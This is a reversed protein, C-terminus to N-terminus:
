RVLMVSGKEVKKLEGDLEYSCVWIYPASPQLKHQFRGDWGVNNDNTAFVVQGHRNYIKLNYYVLGGRVIPKFQDNRGNFDPSFANPFFVGQTCRKLIIVISDESKCDNTDIVHLWYIGSSSIFNQPTTKGDNWLYSKYRTATFLNLRQGPCISTDNGLSPKIPTKVSLKVSDTILCGPFAVAEVSFLDDPNVSSIRATKNDALVELGEQPNWYYNTYGAAAKIEITDGFCLNVKNIGSLLPEPETIIISKTQIGNCFSNFKVTYTGSRTVNFVSDTSGDQWLYMKFWSGPTLKITDGPCLVFKPNMFNGPPLLTIELSDIITKDGDIYAYIKIKTSGSGVGRFTVAITSDNVKNLTNIDTQKIDWVVPKNCRVNKNVSYYVQGEVTCVTDPGTLKIMNCENRDQCLRDITLAITSEILTGPIIPMFNNEISQFNLNSAYLGFPKVIIPFTTDKVSCSQFAKYDFDQRILEISASPSSPTNRFCSLRTGTFSINNGGESLYYDTGPITSASTQSKIQGSLNLRSYYYDNNGAKTGIIHFNLATDPKLQVRAPTMFTSYISKSNEVGLTDDFVVVLQDRNTSSTEALLGWFVFKNQNKEVRYNHRLFSYSISGPVGGFCFRKTHLLDGTNYDLQLSYIARTDSQPCEGDIIAGFIVVRGNHLFVGVFNNLTGPESVFLKNVVVGGNTNLGIFIGHDADSGNLKGSATAVLLIDGALGEAISTVAIKINDNTVLAEGITRTWLIQGGANLQTIFPVSIDPNNTDFSRGAIVINGSTLELIKNVRASKLSSELTTHWVINGAADVKVVFVMGRLVATPKFFGSVLNSGDNTTTICIGELAGGSARLSAIILSDNCFTFAPIQLLIIIWTLLRSAQRKM